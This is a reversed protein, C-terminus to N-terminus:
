FFCNGINSIITSKLFIQTIYKSIIILIDKGQIKHQNNIKTEKQFGKSAKASFVFNIKLKM